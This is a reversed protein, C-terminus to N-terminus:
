SRAVNSFFRAVFCGFLASVDVGFGDLFTSMEVGGGLVGGFDSCFEFFGSGPTGLPTGPPDGLSRPADGPPGQLM